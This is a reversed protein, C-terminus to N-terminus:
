SLVEKLSSEDKKFSSEDSAYFLDFPSKIQALSKNSIHLYISTTKLSKHGLLRQIHCLDVGAELLHTAFSHRLTHISAPKTIRTLLLSKEFVRQVSRPSIPKEPIRGPFLWYSPTYHKWYQRPISQTQNALLTYRDKNGKGDRVHIMMRKSDIDSIRLNTAESLRLGASYITVLIARHKLNATVSLIEQVEEKSLVVPLPKKEKIRPVKSLVWGRDLTTEYLIKLASYTQSVLPRSAKKEKILYHLYEKIEKQGMKLPSKGFFRVFRCVSGLYCSITKPSYGKLEMDMQMKERLKGM